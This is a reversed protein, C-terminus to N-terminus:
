PSSTPGLLASLRTLQHYVHPNELSNVQGQRQEQNTAQESNHQKDHEESLPGGTAEAM